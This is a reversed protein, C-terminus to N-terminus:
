VGASIWGKDHKPSAPAVANEGTAFLHLSFLLFIISYKQPYNM